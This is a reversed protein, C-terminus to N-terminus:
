WLLRVIVFLLNVPRTFLSCFLYTDYWLLFHNALSSKVAAVVTALDAPTVHRKAGLNETSAALKSCARASLSSDFV